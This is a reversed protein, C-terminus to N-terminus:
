LNFIAFGLIFCKFFMLVDITFFHGGNGHRSRVVILIKCTEKWDKKRHMIEKKEATNLYLPRIVNYQNLICLTVIQYIHM